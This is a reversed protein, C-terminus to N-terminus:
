KYDPLDGKIEIFKLKIFFFTILLMYRGPTTYESNLNFYLHAIADEEKRYLLCCTQAQIGIHETKKFTALFGRQNEVM